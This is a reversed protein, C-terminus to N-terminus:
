ALFGERWSSYTPIWGFEHKFRTNSAGCGKTAMQVMRKGAVLSAMWSPIRRPPPAGLAEAFVPLWENMPAPDDDTVNYIGRGFGAALVTASAADEVHVFSSLGTGEGVIPLRRKLVEQGLHGERCYWTGPGYFLGYRLVVTEFRSDAM